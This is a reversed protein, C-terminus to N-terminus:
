GRGAQNERTGKRNVPRIKADGAVRRTVKGDFQGPLGEGQQVADGVVRLLHRAAESVRCGDLHFPCRAYKLHRDRVLSPQATPYSQSTRRLSGMIFSRNQQRTVRKSEPPRATGRAGASPELGGPHRTLGRPYLRQLRLNVVELDLEIKM